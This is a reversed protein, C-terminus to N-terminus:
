PTCATNRVVFMNAGGGTAINTFGSPFATIHTHVSQNWNSLSANTSGTMAPHSTNTIVVAQDSFGGAGTFSGIPVLQSFNLAATGGFLGDVMLATGPGSLLWNITARLVTAGQTHGIMHLGYVAVRGNVQTAWTARTDVTSQYNAASGGESLIILQYAAFQASTMARWQADTVSTLTTGSPMAATLTSLASSSAGIVLARRTGSNCRLGCTGSTCVGSACANGCMGCHAASTNLNTECGNAANGDCDGFGTNCSGVRCAGGVCAATGNAITCTTGCGGCNTVSTQTNVECGDSSMRNCDAFGSACVYSCIGAACAGFANAGAACARGCMGCNTPDILTNACAGSCLMQSPLCSATCAGAVCVQGAGCTMGCAGCNRTDVQLDRCVGACATLGTPCSLVCAGGTCIEGAGCTTGCAGCHNRDTQTDRCVGSCLTLGASCSVVCAGAVCVQGAGCANGCAGCNLRDTQTDRCTGACATLGTACSLECVGLNCIQGAGCANGCTGCNARDSQLHKASVAATTSGRARCSACGSTASAARPM